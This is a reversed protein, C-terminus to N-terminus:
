ANTFELFGLRYKDFLWEDLSETQTMIENSRARIESFM